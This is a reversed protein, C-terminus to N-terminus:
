HADAPALSAGAVLLPTGVVVIGIAYIAAGLVLVPASVFGGGVMPSTFSALPAVALVFGVAVTGATLLRNGRGAAYGAPLLVFIPVLAPLSSLLAYHLRKQTIGVAIAITVGVALAAGFAAGAVLARYTVRERVSPRGLAAGLVAVAVGIGFLPAAYGGFLLLGVGALLALAGVGALAAKPEPRSGLADRVRGPELEAIWDRELRSLVGSGAAVLLTVVATPLVISVLANLAVVPAVVSGVALASWLPGLTADRPVFTVFRGTELRTLTMRRGDDSVTAGPVTRGVRSGNPAVVVLRDAGLGDLNRYGYERTFEGSRLTGGVSPEAFDVERYRMTLVGAPSVTADVTDTDWMARDAIQRRLTANSRLREVEVGRADELHNRVVWTASGNEQLSVTATSREVALDVGYAQATAEFTEGCADCLPRPPPMADGPAVAGFLAVVVLCALVVRRRHTVM